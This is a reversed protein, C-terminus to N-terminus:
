SVGAPDTWAKSRKIGRVKKGAGLDNGEYMAGLWWVGEMCIDM